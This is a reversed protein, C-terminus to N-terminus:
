ESGAQLGFRRDLPSLIAGTIAPDPGSRDAHFRDADPTPEARINDRRNCNFVVSCFHSFQPNQQM